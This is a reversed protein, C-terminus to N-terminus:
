LAAILLSSAYLFLISFRLPEGAEVKAGILVTELEEVESDEDGVDEDETEGTTAGNTCSTVM